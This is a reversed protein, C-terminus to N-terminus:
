NEVKFIFKLEFYVGNRKKKHDEKVDSKKFVNKENGSRNLELCFNLFQKKVFFFKRKKAKGRDQARM